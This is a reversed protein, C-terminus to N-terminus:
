VLTERAPFTVRRFSAVGLHEEDRGSCGLGLGLQGRSNGGMAFLGRSTAVLVHANGVCIDEVRGAGAALLEPTLCKPVGCFRKWRSLPQVGCDAGTVYM